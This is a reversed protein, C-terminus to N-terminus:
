HEGGNGADHRDAVWSGTEYVHGRPTDPHAARVCHLGANDLEHTCNM